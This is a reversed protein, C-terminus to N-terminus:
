GRIYGEGSWWLCVDNDTNVSESIGKTSGVKNPKKVGDM